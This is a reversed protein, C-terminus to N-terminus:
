CALELISNDAGVGERALLSLDDPVRDCLGCNSISRSDLVSFLRKSRLLHLAVAAYQGVESRM